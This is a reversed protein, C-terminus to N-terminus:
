KATASRSRYRALIQVPPLSSRMAIGAVVAIILVVAGAIAAPAQFRGTMGASVLAAAGGLFASAAFAGTYGKFLSWGDLAGFRATFIVQLLHRLLPAAILASLAPIWSGTMKTVVAGAAIVAVSALATPVLLRFRGVSELASALALEVSIVGYQIAVFPAIAAALGWGPGFVIATAIPVLGALIAAAPFCTWAILLLYDTWAQRTRAKVGTDHRIEPYVAKTLAFLAAEMPVATLVDARNWQGLADAGVWRSVAWKGLNASLYALMTLGLVRWAFGLDAQAAARDPRARWHRRSLILLVVVLLVSATVPSVLLTMPGPAFIVAILGIAMGAVSTSVLSIAIVRFRGLRRQVGLLLGSLPAVFASVGIMRAPGVADPAGWLVAWPRAFLIVLLGGLMGLGIAVLVLFSLKSPILEPTRAAAQGLGGQAFLNVLLLLSTAVAYLGFGTDPVLRSTVAAYGLQLFMVAIQAGFTWATYSALVHLKSKTSATM